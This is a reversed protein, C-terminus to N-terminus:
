YRRLEAYEKVKGAALVFERQGPAGNECRYIITTEDGMINFGVARIVGGCASLVQEETMGIAVQGAQILKWVNVSWTPYKKQPAENWFSGSFAKTNKSFREDFYTSTRHGTYWGSRGDGTKVKLFVPQSENGFEVAEITLAGLNPVEIYGEAPLKYRGTCFDAESVLQHVGKSWFTKGLLAKAAELEAHFGIDGFARLKSGDAMQLVLNPTGGSMAAEIVSATKGVYDAHKFRDGGTRNRSKQEDLPRLQVFEGEQPCRAPVEGLITVQQGTWHRVRESLPMSKEEEGTSKGLTKIARDIAGKDETKSPTSSSTKNTPRRPPDQAFTPAVLITSLVLLTLRAM